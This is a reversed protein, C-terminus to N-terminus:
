PKASPPTFKKANQFALAARKKQRLKLYVEGLNNWIAASEPALKSAEEFHKASARYNKLTAETNGLGFHAGVLDPWKELISQYVLRAAEPKEIRELASAAALTAPQSATVPLLGPKLVVLAWDDSGKWVREFQSLELKFNQDPGSHFTLEERSLDYGHLVAYHWIPNASSGLNELVVVPHDHSVETLLARLSYVQIAVFGLRRAAGVFDSQLTGKKGPTFMMPGLADLSTNLGAFGAVMALTAPGCYNESQEVFPVNQIQYTSPLDGSQDLLAKTQPSSACANLFMLFVLCLLSKM